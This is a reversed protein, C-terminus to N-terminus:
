GGVVHADDLNRKTTNPLRFTLKQLQLLYVRLIYCGFFLRVVTMHSVEETEKELSLRGLAESFELVDAKRELLEECLIKARNQDQTKLLRM